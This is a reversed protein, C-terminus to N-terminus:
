FPFFSNGAQLALISGGADEPGGDPSWPLPLFLICLFCGPIFAPSQPTRAPAPLIESIGQSHVLVEITSLSNLSSGLAGM